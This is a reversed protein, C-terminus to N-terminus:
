NSDLQETKTARTKSRKQQSKQTNENNRSWEHWSILIKLARARTPFVALVILVSEGPISFHERIADFYDTVELAGSVDPIVFTGFRERDM